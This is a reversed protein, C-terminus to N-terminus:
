FFIRYGCEIFNDRANVYKCTNPFLFVRLVLEFHIRSFEYILRSIIFSVIRSYSKKEELNLRGASFNEEQCM